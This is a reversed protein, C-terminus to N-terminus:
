VTHWVLCLHVMMPLWYVQRGFRYQALGWHVCELRYAIGIIRYINVATCCVNIFAGCNRKTCTCVRIIPWHPVFCTATKYILIIVIFHTCKTPRIQILQIVIDCHMCHFIHCVIILIQGIVGSNFECYLLHGCGTV